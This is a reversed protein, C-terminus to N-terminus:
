KYSSASNTRERETKGAKVVPDAGNIFCEPELRLVMPRRNGAYRFLAPALVSDLTPGLGRAGLKKKVALDAVTQLTIEPIDLTIKHFSFIKRQEVLPSQDSRLMIAVLDNRDLEKLRCITGIRGLTETPIGYNKLDEPTPDPLEDDTYSVRVPEPENPDRFGLPRSRNGRDGEARQRIYDNLHPFAGGLIFMITSTDVVLPHGESDIFTYEAGDMIKLLEFSAATRKFNSVEKSGSAGKFSKDWEDLFVIGGSAKVPDGGSKELLVKLIDTPSNGVYGAPTLTPTDFIVVPRNLIDGLKVVMATKGSGSPGCLLLNTHHMPVFGEDGAHVKNYWIALAQRYVATAVKQKAEEQGIIAADLGAKIMEPTPLEPSINCDTCDPPPEPLVPRKRSKPKWDKRYIAALIDDGPYNRTKLDIGLRGVIVASQITSLPLWLESSQEPHIFLVTGSVNHCSIMNIAQRISLLPKKYARDSDTCNLLEDDTYRPSNPDNADKYISRMVIDTQFASLMITESQAMDGIFFSLVAETIEKPKSKETRKM